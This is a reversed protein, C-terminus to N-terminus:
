SLAERAANMKSRLAAIEARQRTVENLLDQREVRAAAEVGEVENLLRTADCPDEQGDIPCKNSRSSPRHRVRMAQLERQGIM